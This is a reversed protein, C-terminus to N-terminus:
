GIAIGCGGNACLLEDALAAIQAEIGAVAALIFRAEARNVESLERGLVREPGAALRERFEPDTLARLVFQKNVEAKGGDM